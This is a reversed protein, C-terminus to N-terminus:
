QQSSGEAASKQKERYREIISSFGSKVDLALGYLRGAERYNSYNSYLSINGAGEQLDLLRRKNEYAPLDELFCSNMLRLFDSDNSVVATDKGACSQGYAAVVIREDTDNYTSCGRIKKSKPTNYRSSFDSKLGREEARIIVSKVLDEDLPGIIRAQFANILEYVKDSYLQLSNAQAEEYADFEFGRNFDAKRCMRGARRGKLSYRDRGGPMAIDGKFKKNRVNKQHHQVQGNIIDLYYRIESLVNEITCINEHNHLIKITASFNKIEEELYDSDIDLSEHCEYLRASLRSHGQCFGTDVLVIENKVAIEDLAYQPTPSTM